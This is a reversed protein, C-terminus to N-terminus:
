QAEPYWPQPQQATYFRRPDPTDPTIPLGHGSLDTTTENLTEAPATQAEPAEQADAAVQEAEPQAEAAATNAETAPAQAATQAGAKRARAEAKTTRRWAKTKHIAILGGALAAAGLAILIAGTGYPASEGYKIRAVEPVGVMDKAGQYEFYGTLVATGLYLANTTRRRIFSPRSERKQSPQAPQTPQAETQQAAAPQAEAPKRGNSAQKFREARGPKSHSGM